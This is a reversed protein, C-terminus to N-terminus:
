AGSGILLRWLEARVAASLSRLEQEIAKKPVGKRALVDRQRDLQQLLHLEGADASRAAVQAALRAVFDRRRGLPFPIMEASARAPARSPGRQLRRRKGDGAHDPRDSRALQGGLSAADIVARWDLPIKAEDNESM